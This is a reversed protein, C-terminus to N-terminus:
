RILVMPRTVSHGDVVVESFYIGSAVPRGRRDLGNWRFTHRGASLTGSVIQTVRRGTTNVVNVEVQSPRALVLPIMTSPNFPNPYNPRLEIERPALPRGGAVSAGNFSYVSLTSTLENVDYLNVLLEVTGDGDVDGLYPGVMYGDLVDSEFEVAGGPGDLVYFQSVYSSDPVLFRNRGFVIERAADDDLDDSDVFSLSGDYSDTQWEYTDALPQYARVRFSLEDVTLKPAFVVLRAGDEVEFVDWIALVDYGDATVSWLLSYYDDTGDYFSVNNGLTKTLEPAGDDNIDYFLYGTEYYDQAIQWEEAYQAAALVPLGAVILVALLRQM